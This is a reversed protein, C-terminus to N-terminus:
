LSVGSEMSSGRGSLDTRKCYAACYWRTLGKNEEWYETMKHKQKVPWSTTNHPRAPASAPARVQPEAMRWRLRWRSVIIRAFFVLDTSALNFLSYSYSRCVWLYLLSLTDSSFSLSIVVLLVIFIALTISFTRNMDSSVWTDEKAYMIIFKGKIVESRNLKLVYRFFTYTSSVVLTYWHYHSRTCLIKYIM